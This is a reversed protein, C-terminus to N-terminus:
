LTVFMKTNDNLQSTVRNNEDMASDIQSIEDVIHSSNVASMNIADSSERVSETISTVSNAMQDMITNLNGALETFQGLIRDMLLATNEYREGTEVFSDYDSLVNENIFAIVELAHDSLTRVAETVEVSISQINSATQRSNDALTSIEDAVVAFGRGAEGARAAEISANLALLNTQSAITLIENTLENIQGVKESDKVSQQLTISLEEMKSGTDNKKQSALQKIEDAEKRIDAATLSGNAAEEHIRATAAKVEALNDDIETATASVTDMSASLEELAASTNTINDSARQIQGTMSEASTTLVVAGDKVGRIIEQLTEIFLNIGNSITQLETSTRTHIRATLDGNGNQINQIILDLEQTMRKIIRSVRFYTIILSALIIVVVIVLLIIGKVSADAKVGGLYNGLNESLAQISDEVAQYSSELANNVSEYDSTLVTIAMIADGTQAYSIVNEVASKYKDICSALEAAQAPGDASQSVLISEDTIYSVYKDLESCLKRVEKVSDNDDSVIGGAATTSVITHVDGNINVTMQHLKGEQRQLESQNTSAVTASSTITSLAQMMVIAYIIFAILIIANFMINQFLTTSLVNGKQKKTM